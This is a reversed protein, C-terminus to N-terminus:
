FRRRPGGDGDGSSDTKDERKWTDLAVYVKGERGRKVTLRVYGKDDPRQEELWRIFTDPKVSLSGLVFDPAKEHPLNFYLGSAFEIKESM